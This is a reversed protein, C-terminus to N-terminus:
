EKKYVRSKTLSCLLLSVLNICWKKIRGETAIMIGLMMKANADTSGVSQTPTSEEQSCEDHLCTGSFRESSAHLAKM